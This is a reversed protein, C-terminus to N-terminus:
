GKGSGFSPIVKNKEKVNDHKKILMSCSYWSYLLHQHNKQSNALFTHCMKFKLTKRICPLSTTTPVM